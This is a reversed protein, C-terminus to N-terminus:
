IKLASPIGRSEAATSFARAWGFITSASDIGVTTDRPSHLVLLAKDLQAVAMELTRGCLDELLQRRISFSRGALLVDTEGEAGIRELDDPPLHKLVHAPEAPAAIIAVARSSPICAAAALVAAGGLSHGILLSPGAGEHVLLWDAARVLDGVNTSFNTEAFEGESSGLGTFDIRLVGIGAAALAAAITDAAPLSKGCTFCHAFLAWARPTGAPRDIVGGLSGGSAQAELLVQTRM